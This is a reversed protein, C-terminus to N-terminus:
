EDEEEDADISMSSMSKSDTGEDDGEEDSGASLKRKKSSKKPKKGKQVRKTGKGEKKEKKVAKKKKKPAERAKAGETDIIKFDRNLNVVVKDQLWESDQELKLQKLKQGVKLLANDLREKEFVLASSVKGYSEIKSEALFKGKDGSGQVEQLVMLMQYPLFIVPTLLGLEPYFLSSLFIM